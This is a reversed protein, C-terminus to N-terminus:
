CHHQGSMGLVGLMSNAVIFECTDLATYIHERSLGNGRVMRARASVNLIVHISVLGSERQRDAPSRWSTCLSLFAASPKPAYIVIVISTFGESIM